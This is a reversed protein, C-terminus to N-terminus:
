YSHKLHACNVPNQEELLLYKFIFCASSFFGLVTWGLRETFCSLLIFLQKYFWNKFFGGCVVEKM